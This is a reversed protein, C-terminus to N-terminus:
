CVKVEGGGLVCLPPRPRSFLHCTWRSGPFTVAASIATILDQTDPCARCGIVPTRLSSSSISATHGRAWSRRLPWSSLVSAQLVKERGPEPRLWGQPCRSGWRRAELSPSRLEQQEFGAPHPATDVVAQRVGSAPRRESGALVRRPRASPAPLTLKGPVSPLQFLRSAPLRGSVSGSCGVKTLFVSLAPPSVGM